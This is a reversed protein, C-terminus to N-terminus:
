YPELYVEQFQSDIAGSAPDHGARAQGAPVFPSKARRDLRIVIPRDRPGALNASPARGAVVLLASGGFCVEPVVRHHLAEKPRELGLPDAGAVGHFGLRSHPYELM